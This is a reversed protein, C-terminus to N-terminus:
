ELWINICISDESILRLDWIRMDFSISQFWSYRYWRRSSRCFLLRFLSFGDAKWHFRYDNRSLYREAIGVLLAVLRQDAVQELSLTPVTGYALSLLDNVPAVPVDHTEEESEGESGSIQLINQDCKRSVEDSEFEVPKSGVVRRQLGGVPGSWSPLIAFFYIANLLYDNHRDFCTYM